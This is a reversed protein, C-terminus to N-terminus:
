TLAFSGSTPTTVPRPRRAGDDIRRRTRRRAISSRRSRSRRRHKTRRVAIKTCMRIILFLHSLPAGIPLPALRNCPLASALATAAAVSTSPAAASLTRPRRRRPRWRINRPRACASTLARILARPRICIPGLPLGSTPFALAASVTPAASPWLVYM